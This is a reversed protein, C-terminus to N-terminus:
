FQNSFDGASITPAVLNGMPSVSVNLEKEVKSSRKFFNDIESVLYNIIKEGITEKDEKIMNKFMGKVDLQYATGYPETHEKNQIRYCIIDTGRTYVRVGGFSLNDYIKPKNIFIYPEKHNNLHDYVKFGSKSFLDRLTELNEKNDQDKRNLFKGFSHM